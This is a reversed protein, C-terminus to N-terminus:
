AGDRHLGSSDVPEHRRPRPQGRRTRTTGVKWFTWEDETDVNRITVYYDSNGVPRANPPMPVQMTHSAVPHTGFGNQFTGDVSNDNGFRWSGWVLV